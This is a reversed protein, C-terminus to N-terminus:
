DEPNIWEESPNRSKFDIGTGQYKLFEKKM